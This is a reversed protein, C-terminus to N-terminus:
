RAQKHAAKHQNKYKDIWSIVAIIILFILLVQPTYFLSGIIALGSDTAPKLSAFVYLLDLLIALIYGAYLIVLYIVVNRKRILFHAIFDYILYKLGIFLSAMVLALMFYSMDFHIEYPASTPGDYFGSKYFIPVLLWCLFFILVVTIYRIFSYKM